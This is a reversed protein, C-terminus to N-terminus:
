SPLDHGKYPTREDQTQSAPRGWGYLYLLVRGPDGDPEYGSIEGGQRIMLLERRLAIFVMCVCWQWRSRQSTGALVEAWSAVGLHVLKMVM